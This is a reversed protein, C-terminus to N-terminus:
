EQALTRSTVKMHERPDQRTSRLLDSWQKERPVNRPSKAQKLVHSLRRSDRGQETCMRTLEALHRPTIEKSTTNRYGQQQEGARLGLLRIPQETSVKEITWPRSTPIVVVTTNPFPLDQPASEATKRPSIHAGSIQHCNSM